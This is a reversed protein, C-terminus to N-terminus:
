LKIRDRMGMQGDFFKAVGRTVTGGAYIMGGIAITKIYSGMDEMLNSDTEEEGLDVFWGGILFVGIFIIILGIMHIIFAVLYIHPYFSVMPLSRKRPKEPKVAPQQPQTPPQYFQQQVPQQTTIPVPPVGPQQPYYPNPQTPIQATNIM